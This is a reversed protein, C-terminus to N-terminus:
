HLFLLVPKGKNAATYFSAKLKMLPPASVNKASCKQAANVAATTSKRNSRMELIPIIEETDPKLEIKAAGPAILVSGPM